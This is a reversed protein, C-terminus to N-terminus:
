KPPCRATAAARLISRHALLHEAYPAREIGGQSLPRKGSSDRIKNRAYARFAASAVAHGAVRFAGGRECARQACVLRKANGGATSGGRGAVDRRAQNKRQARRAPRPLFLSNQVVASPWCLAFPPKTFLASVFLPSTLRINIREAFVPAPCMRAAAAISCARRSRCGLM